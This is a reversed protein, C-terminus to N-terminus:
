RAVKEDLFVRSQEIADFLDGDFHDFEVIAFELASAAASRRRWRFSGQAPPSRTPRRTRRSPKPISPATRSTSPSSATASRACCRRRTSAPGRWGTSISRSCSARISCNPSSRSAPSATSSRGRARARSQSVRGPHRARRRDRRRRQPPPRDGRDARSHDVARARHVPRHRNGHRAGQSRRLGGRADPVPVTSGSGDPNVFSESALFAHGTPASIGHAALSAALPEARRVFDYPEAATFGRSALDALTGDLDAELAERVTFLQVSTLVPM